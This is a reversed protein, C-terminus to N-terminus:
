QSNADSILGADVVYVGNSPGNTCYDYKLSGNSQRTYVRACAEAACQAESSLCLCGAECTSGSSCGSLWVSSLLLALAAVTRM